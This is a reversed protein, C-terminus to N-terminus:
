KQITISEIIVPTVPKDQADTQVQSIKDAVDQGSTVQGFVNYSGQLSPTPAVTIFFQSGNTNPGANAMALVGPKDFSANTNENDFQYGPGGTGDGLPDGGQIMFGAIVRHFTLGDYYPRKVMEGTKPDKFEKSGTALGEFNAVTNPAQETFLECTITGQSTKIIATDAFASGLGALLLCGTIFSVTNKM